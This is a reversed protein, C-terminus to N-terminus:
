QCKTTRQSTQRVTQQILDLTQRFEEVEQDIKHKQELPLDSSNQSDEEWFQPFERFKELKHYLNSANSKEPNNNPLDEKEENNTM